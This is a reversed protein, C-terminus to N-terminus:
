HLRLRLYDRGKWSTVTAEILSDDHPMAHSWTCMRVYMCVYVCVCVVTVTLSSSKRDHVRYPHELTFGGKGSRIDVVVMVVLGTETNVYRM